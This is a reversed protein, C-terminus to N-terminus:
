VRPQGDELAAWLVNASDGELATLTRGDRRQQVPGRRLAHRNLFHRRALQRRADIGILVLPQHQVNARAAPQAGLLQCGPEGRLVPQGDREIAHAIGLVDPGNQAAGCEEADARGQQARGGRVGPQRRKRQPDGLAGGLVQHEAAGRVQGVREAPQTLAAHVHDTGVRV